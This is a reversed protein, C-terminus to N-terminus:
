GGPGLLVGAILIFGMEIIDMTTEAIHQKNPTAVCANTEGFM